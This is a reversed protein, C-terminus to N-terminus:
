GILELFLRFSKAAFNPLAAWNGIDTKRSIKLFPKEFAHALEQPTLEHTPAYNDREFHYQWPSHNVCLFIGRPAGPLSKGLADKYRNLLSGQLHLTCSFFNGWWFMTRFAFVEEKSFFRPYDLVIYPLLRYNEGKSIKPHNEIWASKFPFPNTEIERELLTRAQNFLRAIKQTISFKTILFDRDAMYSLEKETMIIEKEM